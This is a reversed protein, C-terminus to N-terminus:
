RRLEKVVKYMCDGKGHSRLTRWGAPTDPIYGNNSSGVLILVGPELVLPKYILNAVLSAVTYPGQKLREKQM